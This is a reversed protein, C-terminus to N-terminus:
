DHGYVLRVGCFPCFTPLLVISKTRLKKNVKRTPVPLVMRLDMHRGFGMQTALEANHVALSENTLKICDCPIIDSKTAM